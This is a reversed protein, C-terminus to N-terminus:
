PASRPPQPRVRFRQVQSTAIVAGSADKAAVQWLLPKGPVMRARVAPPLSVDPSSADAHWVEARDVEMVQVSYSAAGPVAEWRLETAPADLDDGPALLAVASSRFVEPGSGAEPSLAPPRVEQGRLNVVLLLAAALSLAAAAPRLLRRPEWRRPPEDAAIGASAGRRGIIRAIDADLQVAIWRAAEEEDARPAAASFEKMMALETRCRLCGAVHEALEADRGGAHDTGRLRELEEITACDSSRALASKLAKTDIRIVGGM